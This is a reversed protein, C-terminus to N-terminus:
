QQATPAFIIQTLGPRPWDIHETSEVAGLHAAVARCNVALEGHPNDTTIQYGKGQLLKSAFMVLAVEPRTMQDLERALANIKEEDEGAQNVSAAVVVIKDINIDAM